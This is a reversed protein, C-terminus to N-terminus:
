IDFLLRRGQLMMNEKMNSEEKHLHRPDAINEWAGGGVERNLGALIPEGSM